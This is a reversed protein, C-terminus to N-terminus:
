RDPQREAFQGRPRAGPRFQGAGDGRTLRSHAIREQRGGSKPSWPERARKPSRPPPSRTSRLARFPDPRISEAPPARRSLERCTCARVSEAAEGGPAQENPKREEDGAHEQADPEDGNEIAGDQGTKIVAGADDQQCEDDSVQSGAEGRHALPHLARISLPPHRWARLPTASASAANRTSAGFQAGPRPPTTRQRKRSHRHSTSDMISTTGGPPSVSAKRM